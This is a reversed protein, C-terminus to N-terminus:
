EEKKADLLVAIAPKFLTHVETFIAVNHSTYKLDKM